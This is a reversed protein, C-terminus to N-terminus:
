DVEEAQTPIIQANIDKYLYIETASFLMRVLLRFIILMQQLIFALLLYFYHNKPLFGEIVNYVVAGMAGLVAVLFFVTFVRNFNNKLFLLLPYIEKLVKTSDKVALAIKLYDGVLMVLGLLFILLIYRSARLIFEFIIKEQNAFLYSLLQGTLDNIKFAVAFFVLSLLMVKSFRYWHKVGGYFFDVYENKKVINFVSILGGLYFVQILVYIGVTGYIMYPIEGIETDYLSRFQLYWIYDIGSSLLQSLSSHMLHDSLMYYLPLSLVIGFALNTGWYLWVFKSNRYLLVISQRFIEKLQKIM